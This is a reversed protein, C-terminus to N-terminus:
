VFHHHQVEHGYDLVCKVLTYVATLVSQEFPLHPLISKDKDLNENKAVRSDTYIINYM